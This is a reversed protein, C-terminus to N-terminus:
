QATPPLTFNQTVVCSPKNWICAPDPAQVNQWVIGYGFASADMLFMGGGSRSVILEYSGDAKTKVGQDAGDQASVDTFLTCQADSACEVNAGAVPRNAQDVVVGRITFSASPQQTQAAPAPDPATSTATSSCAALVLMAAGASLTRGLEWSITRM